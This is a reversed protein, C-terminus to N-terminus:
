YSLNPNCLQTRPQGFTSLTTSQCSAPSSLQRLVWYVKLLVSYISLQVIGEWNLCTTSYLFFSCVFCSHFFSNENEEFLLVFPFAVFTGFISSFCFRSFSVFNCDHTDPALRFMCMSLSIFDFSDHTTTITSLSALHTEKKQKRQCSFYIAFSCVKGFFFFYKQRNKVKVECVLVCRVLHREEKKKRQISFLFWCCCYCFRDLFHVLSSFVSNAGTDPWM